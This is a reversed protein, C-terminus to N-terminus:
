DGEFRQRLSEAFRDQSRIERLRDAWRKAEARSVRARQLAQQGEAEARQAEDM